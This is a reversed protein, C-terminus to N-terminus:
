CSSKVSYILDSFLDILRLLFFLAISFVRDLVLRYNSSLVFFLIFEDLRRAKERWKSLSQQIHFNLFFTSTRATEGERGCKYHNIFDKIKRDGNTIPATRIVACM